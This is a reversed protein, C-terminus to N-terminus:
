PYTPDPYDTCGVHYIGKARPLLTGSEPPAVEGPCCRLPEEERPLRKSRKRPRFGPGGFAPSRRTAEVREAAALLESAIM